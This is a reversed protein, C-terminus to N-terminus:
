QKFKTYLLAVKSSLECWIEILTLFALRVRKNRLYDYSYIKLLNGNLNLPFKM